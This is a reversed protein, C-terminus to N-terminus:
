LGGKTIYGAPLPAPASSVGNLLDLMIKFQADQRAASQTDQWKQHDLGQNFQRAQEGLQNYNLGMGALSNIASQKNYQNQLEQNANAIDFGSLTNMLNQQNQLGMNALAAAAAGSGSMGSRTFQNNLASTQAGQSGTAANQARNRMAMLEAPTYGTRLNQTQGWAQNFTSNDIAPASTQAPYYSAYPNNSGLPIATQPAPPAYTNYGDVKRQRVDGLAAM